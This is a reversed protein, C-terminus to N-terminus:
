TKTKEAFPLPYLPRFILGSTGPFSRSIKRRWQGMRTAPVPAELIWLVEPSVNEGTKLVCM